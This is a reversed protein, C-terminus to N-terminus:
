PGTSDFPLRGADAGMLFGAEKGSTVIGHLYTSQINLRRVGKPRLSSTRTVLTAGVDLVAAGRANDHLYPSPRPSAVRTRIRRGAPQIDVSTRDQLAHPERGTCIVKLRIHEAM